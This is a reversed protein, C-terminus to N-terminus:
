NKGQSGQSSKRRRMWYWGIYATCGLATASSIILGAYFWRQPLFEVELQLNYSGDPNKNCLKQQKCLQDIDVYWGNEFDNLKFHDTSPVLDPKAWPVWSNFWGMIKRNRFELSWKPHYSEAM